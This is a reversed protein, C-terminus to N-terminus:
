NSVPLRGSVVFAASCVYQYRLKPTPTPLQISSRNVLLFDGGHPENYAPISGIFATGVTTSSTPTGIPTPVGKFGTSNQWRFTVTNTFAFKKYDGTEMLKSLNGSTDPDLAVCATQVASNRFLGLYIQAANAPNNGPQWFYNALSAGANTAIYWDQITALRYTIQFSVLQWAHWHNIIDTLLNDTIFQGLTFDFQYHGTTFSNVNVEFINSNTTRILKSRTQPALNLSGKPARRAKRACSKVYRYGKKYNSVKRTIRKRGTYRRRYNRRRRKFFRRFRRRYMRAM